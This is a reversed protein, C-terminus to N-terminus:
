KNKKNIIKLIFIGGFFLAFGIITFTIVVKIPFNFLAALAYFLVFLGFVILFIEAGSSIRFGEGAVSIKNLKVTPLYIGPIKAGEKFKHSTQITEEITQDNYIFEFTTIYFEGLVEGDQNLKKETKVNKVKFDVKVGSKKFKSDVIKLYIGLIILLLGISCFIVAIMIDEFEFMKDSSEINM